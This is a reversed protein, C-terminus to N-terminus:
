QFLDRLFVRPLTEQFGGLAQVQLGALASEVDGLTWCNDSAVGVLDVEQKALEILNLPCIDRVEIEAGGDDRELWQLPLGQTRCVYPRWPYIRCAGGTDLFACKGKPHPQDFTLLSHCHHRIVEAEVPFVSINDVCCDHCGRRCVLLPDLRDSIKEARRSVEEQLRSVLTLIKPSIEPPFNM